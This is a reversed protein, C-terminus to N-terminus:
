DRGTRRVIRLPSGQQSVILFLCEVKFADLLLALLEFLRKIEDLNHAPQDLTADQVRIGLATRIRLVVSTLIFNTHILIIISVSVIRCDPSAQEM